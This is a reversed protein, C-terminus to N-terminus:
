AAQAMAPSFKEKLADLAQELAAGPNQAVRNLIIQRQPLLLEVEAEFQGDLPELSMRCGTVGPFEAAIRAAAKRIHPLLSECRPLDRLAVRLIPRAIM